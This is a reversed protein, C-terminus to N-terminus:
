DKKSLGLQKKQYRRAPSLPGHYKRRCSSVSRKTDPPARGLPSRKNVNGGKQNQKMFMRPEGTASCLSTHKPNSTNSPGYSAKGFSLYICEALRVQSFIILYHFFSSILLFCSSAKCGTEEKEQYLVAEPRTGAKSQQFQCAQDKPVPSVFYLVAHLAKCPECPSAM